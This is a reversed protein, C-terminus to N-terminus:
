LFWMRDKKEITTDLNYRKFNKYFNSILKPYFMSVPLSKANFGRYNTGSLNLIDQLFSKYNIEKRNPYYFDIYIPNSYRKRPTPNHYNLGETWLLFEKDSLQIYSSEYPILSNNNPDYGFFKSEDNVRIIYIEVDSTSQQIAKEIEKIANISIKEPIHFVIKEFNKYQTILTQIKKALNAFYEDKNTADALPEITLFKGSSDLLVSYAFFRLPNNNNDREISQGVGIILCNKNEAEVVWPINGSKALIQLAIGSISWKLKNEDIITELNVAQLPINRQLCINKLTFYFRKEKAPFVSIIISNQDINRIISELDTEFSDLQIGTTNEKTQKPLGISTLGEFTKFSEGNLARILSNVYDKHSRHFLYIYKIIESKFEYPGFKTIGQFQSNDQNNGRFIYRRLNLQESEIKQFDSLIELDDRIQFFEKLKTNIFNRIYRYKDIHYNVNSRFNDDLSFSLQQIKQDFPVSESKLFKYDVLFGFKGKIKLYYPEFRIARYGLETKETIIYLHLPCFKKEKEKQIFDINTDELKKKLLMFLYYKSLDLNTDSSLTRQTSSEFSEFSIWYYKCNKEKDPLKYKRINEDWRKEQPLAPRCYVNFNFNNNSIPLFNLLIKKIGKQEM